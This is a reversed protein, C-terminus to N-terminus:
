IVMRKYADQCGGRERCTHTHVWTCTHKLLNQAETKIRIHIYRFVYCCCLPFNYVITVMKKFILVISMVTM